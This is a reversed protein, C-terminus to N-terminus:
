VTPYKIEFAYTYGAPATTYLKGGSVYTHIFNANNLWAPCSVHCIVSETPLGSLLVVNNMTATTTIEVHLHCVGAIVRYFCGNGTNNAFSANPTSAGSTATPILSGDSAVRLANKRDSDSTGIGVQFLDTTNPANCRGFVAQDNGNARLQYGHAFANYTGSATQSENGGVHSALGFASNTNGEAHSSDGSAITYHGEAHASWGSATTHYGESHANTGSATTSDGQAHSLLGSALTNYGEAHSTDGTAKTLSGEAHTYQNTAQTNIGEAHSTNGNAITSDGETHSYNGVARTTGGEAHAYQGTVLNNQGEAHAPCENARKITFKWSATITETTNLTVVLGNIVTIQCALVSKANAIKIDLWDGVNYSAVSDLTITKNTNNFATIIHYIGVSVLNWNGEVHGWGTAVISESGEAHSSVGNATTSYGETHADNGPAKTLTGEAHSKAGSATTTDGEAHSCDGNAITAKGEAHANWGITADTSSGGAQTNEGESHSYNAYAKTSYGEAHANNGRAENNSGSVFSNTGKTGSRTGFTAGSPVNVIGTGKPNINVDINADTGTANIQPANGTTNSKITLYNVASAVADFVVSIVSNIYHRIVGTGKSKIDLGVNTDNGSAQFSPANGATANNVTIENVASAVAGPFKLLENNNSDNISSGSSMKPATLTKNNLTQAGNKTVVGNMELLQYQSGDWVVTVISGALIDGTELATSIDKCINKAGYGNVNLTCTGTNPVTTTFKLITGLLDSQQTAGNVTITYDDTASGNTYITKNISLISDILDWNPNIATIDPLDLLGPKVLGLNTTSTSM